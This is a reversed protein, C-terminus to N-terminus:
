QSDLPPQPDHVAASGKLTIDEETYIKGEVIWEAVLQEKIDRFVHLEWDVDKGDISM